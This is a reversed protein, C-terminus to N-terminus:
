WGPAHSVITTQPLDLALEVPIEQPVPLKPPHTPPGDSHHIITDQHAHQPAQSNAVLPRDFPAFLANFIHMASAGFLILVIDRRSLTHWLFLMPLACRVLLLLECPTAIACCESECDCHSLCVSSISAVVVNSRRNKARHLVACDITLGKTM